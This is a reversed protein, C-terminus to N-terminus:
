SLVQEEVVEVELDIMLVQIMLLLQEVVVAV